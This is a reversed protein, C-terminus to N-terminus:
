KSWISAFNNREGQRENFLFDLPNNEPKTNEISNAAVISINSPCFIYVQETLKNFNGDLAASAGAVFDILRGADMKKMKDLCITTAGRLRLCGVIDLAEEYSIPEFISIQTGLRNSLGQGASSITHPKRDVLAPFLEVEKKMSRQPSVLRDKEQGFEKSEYSM